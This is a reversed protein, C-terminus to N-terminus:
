EAPRTMAVLARHLSSAAGPAPEDILYAYWAGDAALRAIEHVPSGDTQEHRECRARYWRAWLGRLVPDATFSAAMAAWLSSEGFQERDFVTAIYARTFAGAPQPDAAMHADIVTDFREIQDAFMGEVLAQKNPFHHFLGGKTVGAAAAVAQITVAAFGQRAALAAAGDLLARRVAEPEKRRAFNGSM